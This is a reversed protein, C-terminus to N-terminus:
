APQNITKWTVMVVMIGNVVVWMGGKMKGSSCHFDLGQGGKGLEQSVM